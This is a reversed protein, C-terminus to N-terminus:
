KNLGPCYACSDIGVARWSGGEIQLPRIPPAFLTRVKEFFETLITRPVEQWDSIEKYRDAVIMWGRLRGDKMEAIFRNGTVPDTCEVINM